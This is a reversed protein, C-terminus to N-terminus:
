EYCLLFDIEFAVYKIVNFLYLLQLDLAVCQLYWVLQLINVLQTM